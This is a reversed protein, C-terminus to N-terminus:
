PVSKPRVCICGVAIKIWEKRYTHRRNKRCRENEGKRRIKRRKLVQVTRYLKISNNSKDERNNQHDYCHEYECVAVGINPPYRSEDHDLVVRWPASARINVDDPYSVTQKAALELGMKFPAMENFTESKLSLKKMQREESPERLMCKAQSDATYLLGVVLLCTKFTKLEKM